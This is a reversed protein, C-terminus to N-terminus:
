NAPPVIEYVYTWKMKTDGSTARHMRIEAELGRDFNTPIKRPRIKSPLIVNSASDIAKIGLKWGANNPKGDALFPTKNAWLETVRNGDKNWYACVATGIWQKDISGTAAAKTYKSSDIERNTPHPWEGGLNFSGDSINWQPESWMCEDGGDCGSHNPGDTKMEWKEQGSGTLFYGIMMYNEFKHNVNYRKGNRHDSGEEMAVKNGTPKYLMKTGHQDVETDPEPVTKTVSISVSKTAIKTGKKAEAKFGLQYSVIAKNKSLIDPPTFQWKWKEGDISKFDINQSSTQTVTLTDAVSQSGDINGTKLVEIISPFALNIVPDGPPPPNTDETITVNVSDSSTAGKSDKVTLAFTLVNPDQLKVVTSGERSVNYEYHVKGDTDISKVTATKGKFDLQTFGFKGSDRYHMVNNVGDGSDSIGNWEHGAHGTVIYLQGHDKTFDFTGDPLRTFLQQGEGNAQSDNPIMPLWLQTNHNHGHLVFDVQADRFLDKYLFRVATYPSHSTKLTFFPKHCMYVIWDIKGEARLQKAKALEAALWNYQDRKFEVDLDQTNGSIVYVNGVQGASLWDLQDNANKLHPLWAEIQDETNQSESEKHEHNGQSIRLKALKDPTNFHSKMMNIWDTADTDYPGDGVFEYESVNEIKMLATLVAKAGSTTDTDAFALLRATLQGPPPPPPPNTDIKPAIFTAVKENPTQLQVSQGITQKWEYSVISDGVDPDFSESGDLSVIDGVKVIQDIGADAVPPHNDPPPPPPPNDASYGYLKIGTYSNWDNSSNGKVSIRLKNDITENTVDFEQYDLTKGSSVFDQGNIEFFAQRADGKYFACKVKTVKYRGDLQFEIFGLKGNWSWRTSLDDDLVNEAVNGDDGSATVGTPKIEGDPPPPIPTDLPINVEKGFKKDSKDDYIINAVIPDVIATSELIFHRKDVNNKIKSIAIDLNNEETLDVLDVLKRKM